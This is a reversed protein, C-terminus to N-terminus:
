TLEALKAAGGRFRQALQDLIVRNAQCMQPCGFLVVPAHDKERSVQARPFHEAKAPRREFIRNAKQNAWYVIRADLGHNFADSSSKSIAGDVFLVRSALRQAYEFGSARQPYERVQVSLWVFPDKNWEEPPESARRRANRSKCQFGIRQNNGGDCNPVCLLPTVEEVTIWWEFQYACSVLVLIEFDIRSTECSRHLLQNTLIRILPHPDVLAPLSPGRPFRGDISLKSWRRSCVRFCLPHLRLSSPHFTVSFCGSKTEDKM